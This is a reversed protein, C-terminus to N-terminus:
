RPASIPIFQSHGDFAYLKATSDRVIVEISKADGNKVSRIVDIFEGTVASDGVHMVFDRWSRDHIAPLLLM